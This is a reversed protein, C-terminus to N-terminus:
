LCDLSNALERSQPMPVKLAAFWMSPWPSFKQTSFAMISNYLGAPRSLNIMNLSLELEVSKACSAEYIERM